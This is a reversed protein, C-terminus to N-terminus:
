VMRQLLILGPATHSRLRHWGILLSATGWYNRQRCLLSSWALNFIYFSLNVKLLAVGQHKFCFFCSFDCSQVLAPLKFVRYALPSSMEEMLQIHAWTPYTKPPPDAEPLKLPPTAVAVLFVSHPGKAGKKTPSKESLAPHAPSGLWVGIVEQADTSRCLTAKTYDSIGFHSSNSYSSMPPLPLSNFCTENQRKAMWSM